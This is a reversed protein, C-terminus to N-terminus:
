LVTWLLQGGTDLECPAQWPGSFFFLSSFLLVAATALVSSTRSKGRVVGQARPFNEDVSMYGM